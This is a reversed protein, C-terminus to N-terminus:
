SKCIAARYVDKLPINHRRAIKVCDSYEPSVNTFGGGYKSCKVRVVGWRTKIMKWEWEAMVREVPFYRVGFTTTEKMIIDIIRKRKDEECIIQVMVGPRGKKMVIPIVSADLAGAGLLRDIVYPYFEPNMDDINAEVVIVPHGEGIILRLANPMRPIKSDGFGYAIRKIRRLPLSGFGGTITKLIAAGTPTVLERKVPANEIPIGKIIELTAPAPIPFKGHACRVFGRTVPLPSSYIKEFNFYHVAVAAGVIDIISDLGGIEHFHVDGLKRRHVKAEAIALELFISLAIEKPAAPLASTKILKEIDTYRTLNPEREVVVSINTGAIQGEEEPHAEIRYGGIRLKELGNKLTSLPLGADVFAGLIMDGSAGSYCDFYAVTM